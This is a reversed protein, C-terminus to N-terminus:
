ALLRERALEMVQARSLGAHEAAILHSGLRLSFTLMCRLEVEERDACFSGFLSRLYEM